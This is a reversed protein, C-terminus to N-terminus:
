LLKSRSYSTAVAILTIARSISLTPTRSPDPDGRSPDPGEPQPTEPSPTGRIKLNEYTREYM